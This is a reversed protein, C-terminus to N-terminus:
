LLLAYFVLPQAHHGGAATCTDHAAHKLDQQQTSKTAKGQCVRAAAAAASPGGRSHQARGPHDRARARPLHVTAPRALERSPGVPLPVAATNSRLTEDERPSRVAQVHHPEPQSLQDAGSGGHVVLSPQQLFPVHM